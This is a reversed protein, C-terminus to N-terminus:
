LLLSWVKLTCDPVFTGLVHSSRSFRMARGDAPPDGPKSVVCFRMRTRSQWCVHRNEGEEATCRTVRFRARPVAESIASTASSCRSCIVFSSIGGAADRRM